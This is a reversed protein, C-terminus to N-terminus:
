RWEMSILPGTRMLELLGVAAARIPSILPPREQLAGECTYLVLTFYFLMPTRTWEHHSLQIFFLLNASNKCYRDKHTNLVHMLTRTIIMLTKVLFGAKVTQLLQELKLIPYLHLTGKRHLHRESTNVTIMPICFGSVNTKACSIQQKGFAAGEKGRDAILSAKEGRWRWVLCVM